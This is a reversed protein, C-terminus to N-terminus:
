ASEVFNGSLILADLGAVRLEHGLQVLIVPCTVVKM